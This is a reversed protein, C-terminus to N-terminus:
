DDSVRVTWRSDVLCNPSKLNGHSVLHTKHLYEMGKAIDTMFSMKFFEDLNVEDNNLLDQHPHPPM